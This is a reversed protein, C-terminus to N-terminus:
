NWSRVSSPRSEPCITAEGQLFGGGTKEKLNDKEHEEELRLKSTVDELFGGWARERWSYAGERVRTRMEKKDDCKTRLGDKEDVAHPYSCRM